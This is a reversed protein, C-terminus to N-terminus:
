SIVCVGYTPLTSWGMDGLDLKNPRKTMRARRLTELAKVPTLGLPLPVAAHAAELDAYIRGHIDKVQDTTEDDASAKLYKMVEVALAKPNLVPLSEDVEARMKLEDSKSVAEVPAKIAMSALGAKLDAIEDSVVRLDAEIRDVYDDFVEQGVSLAGSTKVLRRVEGEIKSMRTDLSDGRARLDTRLKDVLGYLVNVRSKLSNFEKAELPSMM